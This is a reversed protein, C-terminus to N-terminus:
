ARVIRSDYLVAPMSQSGSSPSDQQQLTLAFRALPLSCPSHASSSPDLPAAALGFRWGRFASPPTTRAPWAQSRAVGAVLSATLRTCTCALARLHAVVAVAITVILNYHAISSEAACRGGVIISNDSLNEDGLRLMALSTVVWQSKTRTSMRRAKALTVETKALWAIAGERRAIKDFSKTRGNSGSGDVKRWHRKGRSWKIQHRQGLLPPRRESSARQSTRPLCTSPHHRLTTTTTTNVAPALASAPLAFRLM